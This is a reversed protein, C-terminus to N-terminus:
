EYLKAAAEYAAAIFHRMKEADKVGPAIEVGSAVDVAYPRVIRLRKPWM